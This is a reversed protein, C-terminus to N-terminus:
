AIREWVYVVLYPPLNNHAGGGGVPDAGGAIDGHGSQACNFTTGKWSVGTAQAQTSNTKTAGNYYYATAQTGASNHFGVPHGHWPMESVTLTHTAEGGSDGAQYTEGAALLFVDNIPAWEGGFLEAPSTSDTSQYIAGVPYILNWIAGIEAELAGVAANLDDSAKKEAEKVAGKTSKDGKNFLYALTNDDNINRTIM